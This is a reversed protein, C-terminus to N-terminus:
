GISNLSQIEVTAQFVEASHEYHQQVQNDNHFDNNINELYLHLSFIQLHTFLKTM